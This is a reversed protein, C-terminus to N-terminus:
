WVVSSWQAEIEYDYEREILFWRMATLLFYRKDNWAGTASHVPIHCSTAGKRDGCCESACVRSLWGSGYGIVIVSKPREYIKWVNSMLWPLRDQLTEKKAVDQRKLPVSESTSKANVLSVFPRSPFNTGTATILIPTTWILLYSRCLVWYKGSALACSNCQNVLRLSEQEWFEQPLSVSHRETRRGLQTLAEM